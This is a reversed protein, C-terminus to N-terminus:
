QRKIPSFTIEIEGWVEQTEENSGTTTANTSATTADSALKVSLKAVSQMQNQKSLVIGTRALGPLATTLARSNSASTQKQNIEINFKLPVKVRLNQISLLADNKGLETGKAIGTTNIRDLASQVENHIILITETLYTETNNTVSM